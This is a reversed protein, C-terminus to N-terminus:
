PNGSLLAQYADILSTYPPVRTVVTQGNIAVPEKIEFHLHITTSTTGFNNSVLGLPQGRTVRDGIAVKLQDMQMHLYLYTRGSDGSLYVTYTGIQSIVGSEAAVAVWTAKQCSNPRIDQGQHGTGSPCLPTTYARAECFNDHWPYSYNAADCQGGGPGSEGGHGYVQSNAYGNAEELPFRIGPAYVTPDDIGPNGSQLQGPPTYTFAALAPNSSSAPASSAPPASSAQASSDAPAASAPTASSVPAASSDPASSSAPASSSGDAGAQSCAALALLALAAFAAFTRAGSM